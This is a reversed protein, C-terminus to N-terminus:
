GQTCPKLVERKAGGKAMRERIAKECIESARAAVM